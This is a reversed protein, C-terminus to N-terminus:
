PNKREAPAVLADAQSPRNRKKKKPNRSSGGKDINELWKGKSKSDHFIAGVLEEGSAFNTAIDHLEKTTHPFKHGLKHVLEKCSTGVLFAGDVNVNTANPLEM